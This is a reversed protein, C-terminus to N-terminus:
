GFLGGLLGGAASGAASGGPGAFSGLIGGAIKGITSGSGGSGGGGSGQAKEAQEKRIEAAEIQKEADKKSSLVNGYQMLADGAMRVEMDKAKLQDEVFSSMGQDSTVADPM